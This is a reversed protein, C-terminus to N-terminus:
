HKTETHLRIIADLEEGSTTMEADLGARQREAILNAKLANIQGDKACLEEQATRDRDQWGDRHGSAHGEEFGHGFARRREDSAITACARIMSQVIRNAEPWTGPARELILDELQRWADNIATTIDTPTMRQSRRFQISEIM